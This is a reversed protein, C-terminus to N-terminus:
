SGEGSLTKLSVDSKLSNRMGNIEWLFHDAFFQKKGSFKIGLFDTEYWTFKQILINQLVEESSTM